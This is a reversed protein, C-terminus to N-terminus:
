MRASRYATGAALAAIVTTTLLVAVHDLVPEGHLVGLGLGAVHYTPLFPAIRQVFAPL